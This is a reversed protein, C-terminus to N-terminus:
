NNTEVRVFDGAKVLRAGEDVLTDNKSLGESVYVDNKYESATTVPKKIVETENNKEQAVFVYDHGHQDQQILHSPVVIGNATFDLIKLESLLNPKIEKDKNPINVQVKFSRNEPNIFNSVQAVTSVIEKNLTPFTVIVETGKKVIPLYAETIEAEIYVKDLNILRVIPTQPGTLEGIRPFIEDITGSFPATIRAKAAQSQLSALNSELSEKQAKAQLYQMESGIKDNWLRQQREFTTTALALQTKLQAINNRLTADDLQVLAQGAAVKQGDKVFISTITGGMEPTIIINKDAQVAGQIELYHKFLTDKVPLLTVLHLKASSDLKVIQSEVLRLESNLSDISKLIATKKTTLEQLDPNETKEKSCSFLTIIAISTIIIKKM